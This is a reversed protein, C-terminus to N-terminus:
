AIEAIVLVADEDESVSFFRGYERQAKILPRARERLERDPIPFHWAQIHEPRIIVLVRGCPCPDFDKADPFREFIEEFLGRYAPYILSAM